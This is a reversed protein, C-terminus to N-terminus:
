YEEESSGAVGCSNSMSRLLRRMRASCSSLPSSFLSKLTVVPQVGALSARGRFPSAHMRGPRPALQGREHQAAALAGGERIRSMCASTVHCAHM